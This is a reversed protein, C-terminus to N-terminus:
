KGESVARGLFGTAITGLLADCAELGALSVGGSASVGGPRMGLLLSEVRLDGGISVKPGIRLPDRGWHSGTFPERAAIGALVEPAIELSARSHLYGAICDVQRTVARRLDPENQPTSRIAALAKDAIGHRVQVAHGLLHALRYSADARSAAQKTMAIINKSTCYVADSTVTQDAGCFGIVHPVIQLTAVEGFTEQTSAM